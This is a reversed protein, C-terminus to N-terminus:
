GRSLDRSGLGSLVQDLLPGEREFDFTYPSEFSEPHWGRGPRPIDPRSSIVDLHHGRVAAILYENRATYSDTSLLIATIPRECFALSFLASGAFGAVVEARRFMTAQEAMSWEEPRVVEFGHDAFYAEVEDV